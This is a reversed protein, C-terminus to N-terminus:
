RINGTTRDGEAELLWLYPVAFLLQGDGEDSALCGAPPLDWRKEDVPWKACALRERQGHGGQLDDPLGVRTHQDASM